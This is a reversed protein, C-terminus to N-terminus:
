IKLTNLLTPLNLIIILRDDKQQLISSAYRARDSDVTLLPPQLASRPAEIMEIVSEALIGAQLGENITVIIRAAESLSSQPLGLVRRIDVVATVDGRLNVVGMIHSPTLPVRTIDILRSIELVQQAEFAYWEGGLRFVLLRVKAEHRTGTLQGQELNRDRVLSLIDENESM